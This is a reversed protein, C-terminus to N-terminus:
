VKESEIKKLIPDFLKWSEAAEDERVFVSHDAQLVDHILREYAPPV